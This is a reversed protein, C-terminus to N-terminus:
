TYRFQFKADKTSKDLTHDCINHNWRDTIRTPQLRQIELSVEIIEFYSFEIPSNISFLFKFLSEHVRTMEMVNRFWFIQNLRISSLCISKLKEIAVYLVCRFIIIFMIPHIYLSLERFLFENETNYYCMQFMLSFVFPRWSEVLNLDLIAKREMNFATRSSLETIQLDHQVYTQKYIGTEDSHSSQLAQHKLNNQNTQSLHSFALNMLSHWIWWSGFGLFNRLVFWRITQIIPEFPVFILLLFLLM